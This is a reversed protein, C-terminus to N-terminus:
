AELRGRMGLVMGIRGTKAGDRRHSFFRDPNCHSCEPSVEIREPPIGAEELLIRIALGLDLRPSGGGDRHVARRASSPLKEVVEEGVPYCCSRISPGVAAAMERPSAGSARALSEVAAGPMGAAVGRWGSHALAVGRRDPAAVAILPCDASITFLFVDPDTTVMGDSAPIGTSPDLAGRGRDGRGVPHVRAGHVQQGVVVEAPTVGVAELFRRRNERVSDPADGSSFGVNLSEYPPTSVGGRRLSAACLVGPLVDFARFRVTEIEGRV